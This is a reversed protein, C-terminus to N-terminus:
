ATKMYVPTRRAHSPATRMAEYRGTPFLLKQRVATMVLAGWANHHHPVVGRGLLYVRLTEGTGQWGNPLAAIARLGTEVFQGRAVRTLAEDRRVRADDDGGFLLKAQRM